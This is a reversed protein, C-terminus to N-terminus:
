VVQSHLVLAYLEKPPQVLLAQVWCTPIEREPGDSRKLAQLGSLAGTCGCVFDGSIHAM